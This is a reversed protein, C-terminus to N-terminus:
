PECVELSGLLHDSHTSNTNNTFRDHAARLIHPSKNRNPEESARAVIGAPPYSHRHFQPNVQM